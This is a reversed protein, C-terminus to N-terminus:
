GRGTRRIRGLKIRKRGRKKHERKPKPEPALPVDLAHEIAWEIMQAASNFGAKRYIRWLRNYVATRSLGLRRAIEGPKIGSARLEIM